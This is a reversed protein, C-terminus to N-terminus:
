IRFHDVLDWSHFTEIDWRLASSLTFVGDIGSECLMISKGTCAILTNLTMQSLVFELRSDLILDHVTIIHKSILKMIEFKTEFPFLPWRQSCFLNISDQHEANWEKLSLVDIHSFIHANENSTRLLDIINDAQFKKECLHYKHLIKGFTEYNIWDPQLRLIWASARGILTPGPIRVETDFKDVGPGKM